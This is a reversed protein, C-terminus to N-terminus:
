RWAELRYIALENLIDHRANPIVVPTANPIRKIIRGLETPPTVHDAGGTITLIPLALQEFYRRQQMLHMSKLAADLWGWTVGGIALDPYAAFYKEMLAFREPDHTLPNNDFARDRANYDHQGPAYDAGHGLRLATWSMARATVHVPLSSLALMPATLLVADIGTKQREVLWRLLLHSGMSHGAVLLPGSRYARVIKEYFSSLDDLHIGFDPVHDHQRKAGSLFRDSLGQGRWEFMIIRFGRQLFERGMEAYKKEIFERRGPAILITCRVKEPESLAYRMRKGDGLHHFKSTSLAPHDLM